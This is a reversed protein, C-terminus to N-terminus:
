LDAQLKIKKMKSQGVADFPKVFIGLIYGQCDYVVNKDRRSLQASFSYTEGKNPRYLFLTEPEHSTILKRKTM